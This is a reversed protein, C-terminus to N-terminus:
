VLYEAIDHKNDDNTQFKTRTNFFIKTKNVVFHVRTRKQVNDQPLVQAEIKYSVYKAKQENIYM